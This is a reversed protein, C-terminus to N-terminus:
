SKLIKQYPRIEQHETPSSIITSFKIQIYNIENDNLSKQISNKATVTASADVSITTNWLNTKLKKIDSTIIKKWKPQRIASFFFSLYHGIESKFIPTKSCVSTGFRM